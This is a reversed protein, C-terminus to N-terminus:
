QKLWEARAIEALDRPILVCIKGALSIEVGRDKDSYVKEIVFTGPKGPLKIRDGPKLEM